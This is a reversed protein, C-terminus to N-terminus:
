LAPVCIFGRNQGELDLMQGSESVLVGIYGSGCACTGTLPNISSQGASNVCGRKSNVMFGGGEPRTLQQWVGQSCILLGLHQGDRGIGGDAACASGRSVGKVLVLGERGQLWSESRIWGRVSASGQFDPNRTDRVRLYDEDVGGSGSEGPGPDSVAAQIWNAQLAVTGPQWDVQEPLDSEHGAGRLQRPAHPWVVLGQGRAAQLWEALLFDDVGGRAHRLAQRTAVLAQLRCPAQPCAGQRELRVDLRARLPGNEQWSSALLGLTKLEAWRPTRWDEVGQEALADPTEAQQLLAGYQQLLAQAADRAPLMWAALAQAQLARVRQTWQQSAWVLLLLSVAAVLMFELLLSGRQRAVVCRRSEACM